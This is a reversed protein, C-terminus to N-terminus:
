GLHIFIADDKDIWKFLFIIENNKNNIGIIVKTVNELNPNVINRDDTKKVQENSFHHNDTVASSSHKAVTSRRKNLRDERDQNKKIRKRKKEELMVGYEFKEILQPCNNLNNAPEWTNHEDSYGQWKLYYETKGNEERKSLIKEVVFDYIIPESHSITSTTNIMNDM